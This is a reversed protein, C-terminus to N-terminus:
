PPQLVENVRNRLDGEKVPKSVGSALKDFKINVKAEVCLSKSAKSTDNKDTCNNNTKAPSLIGSMLEKRANNVDGDESYSSEALHNTEDGSSSYNTELNTHTMMQEIECEITMGKRKQKADMLKKANRTDKEKSYVSGDSGAVVRWAHRGLTDDKIFGPPKAGNPATTNIKHPTRTWM